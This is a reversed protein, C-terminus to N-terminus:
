FHLNSKNSQMLRVKSHPKQGITEVDAVKGERNMLNM